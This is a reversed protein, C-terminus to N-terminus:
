IDILSCYFTKYQPKTSGNLADVWGEGKEMQEM